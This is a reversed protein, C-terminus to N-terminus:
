NHAARHGEESYQEATFDNETDRSARICMAMSYSGFPMFYENGGENSIRRAVPADDSNGHPHQIWVTKSTRRVIKVSVISHYNSAFRGYYERGVVFTSPRAEPTQTNASMDM